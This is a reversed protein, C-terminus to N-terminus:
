LGRRGSQMPLYPEDPAPRTPASMLFGGLTTMVLPLYDNIGDTIEPRGVMTAIGGIVSALGIYTSKERLRKKLFSM